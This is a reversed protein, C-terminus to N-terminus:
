IKRFWRLGDKTQIHIDSDIVKGSLHIASRSLKIGPQYDQIWRPHKKTVIERSSKVEHGINNLFLDNESIKVDFSLKGNKLIPNKIEAVYFGPLYGERGDDFDDSTGYYRGIVKGNVEEFVIYHNEILDSTNHPYFYEYTGVIDKPLGNEQSDLNCGAILSLALLGFVIRVM